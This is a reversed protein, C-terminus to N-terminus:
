LNSFAVRFGVDCSCNDPSGRYRLASRVHNAGNHWSGGRLVRRLDTRSLDERGDRANYPYAFDPMDWHKGWASRTWEWVNGAMDLVGYTSAGLPYSGLATTDGGDVDFNCRTGDPAENGWPYIRGDTGRAAKEWEAESPIQVGAWACFALADTWSVCTVPHQGKQRM